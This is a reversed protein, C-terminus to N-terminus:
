VAVCVQCMGATKHAELKRKKFVKSPLWDEDAPDDNEAKALMVMREEFDEDELDEWELVEEENAEVEMDSECEAILKTSDFHVKPQWGEDLAKNDDASPKQAERHHKRLGTTNRAQKCPQGAAM